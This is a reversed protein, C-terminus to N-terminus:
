KGAADALVGYVQLERVVPWFWPPNKDRHPADTITLRVYRGTAGGMDTFAPDEAAERNGTQDAFSTWAQQDASVEIKYAFWVDSKEMFTMTKIIKWPKGLDVMIWTPFVPGPNSATKLQGDFALPASKDGTYAAAPLGHSLLQLEAAGAPCGLALIALLSATKM